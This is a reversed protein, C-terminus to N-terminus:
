RMRWEKIKNGNDMKHRRQGIHVLTCRYGEAPSVTEFMFEKYAIVVVTHPCLMHVHNPLVRLV